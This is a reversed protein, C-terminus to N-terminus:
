AAANAPPDWGTAARPNARREQRARRRARFRTRHREFASPDVEGDPLLLWAVAYLVLGHGMLMFLVTVIRVVAVDIGSWAAIGGCVGGVVRDDTSRHLRRSPPPVPPVGGSPPDSGGPPPSAGALPADDSSTEFPSTM